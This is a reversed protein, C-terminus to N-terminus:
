QYDNKAQFDALPSNQRAWNPWSSSHRDFTMGRVCIGLQHVNGAAWSPVTTTYYLYMVIGMPGGLMNKSGFCTGNSEWEVSAQSFIRAIKLSVHFSPM